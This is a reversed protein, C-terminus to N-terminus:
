PRGPDFEPTSALAREADWRDRLHKYGVTLFRNAGRKQWEIAPVIVLLFSVFLYVPWLGRMPLRANFPLILVLYVYFQLVFVFFSAEGLQAARRLLSDFRRSSQLTLCGLIITLGLGGYWLVYDPGPPTKQLPSAIPRLTAQASSVLGEYKVFLYSGSLALAAIMSVIASFALVRQMARRDGALQYRGLVDGLASGFCNVAFWPLIPFSYSYVVPDLSGVFTEKLLASLESHAHWSDIAIMSVFYAALGIGLRNQASCRQAVFPTVLLCAGLTDTICLFRLTYAPAHSGLLLLHGITLLFLGRDVLVTRLRRYEEPSRIACLFGILIGNILVFSPSAVMGIVRMVTPLRASQDPFFTFGFHSLLVFLMAIGRASDIFQIRRGTPMVGTGSLRVQV